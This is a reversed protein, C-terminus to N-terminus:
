SAARITIKNLSSDSTAPDTALVEWSGNYLYVTTGDTATYAVYSITFCSHQSSKSKTNDYASGSYGVVLSKCKSDVDAMTIVKTNYPANAIDAPAGGTTKAYLDSMVAQASTYCSKGDLVYQKQKAEDIYGLLAPVLIAALIALIVLVVIMEVLTFGKNDNKFKKM